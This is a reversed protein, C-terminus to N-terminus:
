NIQTIDFACPLIHIAQHETIKPFHHFSFSERQKHTNKTTKSLTNNGMEVTKGGAVDEVGTHTKSQPKMANKAAM